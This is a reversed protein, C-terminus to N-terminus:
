SYNLKGPLRTFLLQLVLESLTTLANKKTINKAVNTLVRNRFVGYIKVIYYSIIIIIIVIVIIVIIIIKMIIIVKIIVIIMIIIWDHHLDHNNPKCTKKTNKLFYIKSLNVAAIKHIYNKKTYTFNKTRLNKLIQLRKM